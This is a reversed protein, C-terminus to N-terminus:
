AAEQTEQDEPLEPLRAIGVFRSREAFYGYKAITSGNSNMVFIVCYVPDGPCDNESLYGGWSGAPKCGEADDHCQFILRGNGSDATYSVAEVAYDKLGRCHKITLMEEIGEEIGSIPAAGNDPQGSNGIL